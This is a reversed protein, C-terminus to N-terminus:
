NSEKWGVPHNVKNHERVNLEHVRKDGVVVVDFRNTTRHEIVYLVSLIVEIVWLVVFLRKNKNTWRKGALAPYM